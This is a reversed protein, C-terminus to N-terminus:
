DSPPAEDRCPSFGTPTPTAVWVASGWEARYGAGVGVFDSGLTVGAAVASSGFVVDDTPVRCWRLGDPSEWVGGKLDSPTGGVAILGSGYPVVDGLFAEAFVAEADAPLRQWDDGDPSSWVAGTIPQSLDQGYEFGVVFLGLGSATVSNARLGNPGAFVTEDHPVRSWSRGDTSTWVAAVDTDGGQDDSGVAVLGPGGATVSTMAQRGPGGFVETDHAVRSWWLGDVSTWVAADPGDSGIVWGVAVLGPGGTVVSALKPNDDSSFEGNAVSWVFGDPSTWVPGHESDGRSGVVVVGPGGAVVSRLEVQDGPSDGFVSPDLDSRRWQLADVSTWIRPQTGYSVHFDTGVVVLGPGAVAVADMHPSGALGPVPPSTTSTSDIVAAHPVGDPVRSWVLGGHEFRDWGSIDGSSNGNGLRAVLGVGVIVALAASVALVMARSAPRPPRPTGLMTTSQDILEVEDGRHGEDRSAEERMMTALRQWAHAPPSAAAARESLRETLQRELDTLEIM